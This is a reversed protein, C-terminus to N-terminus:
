IELTFTSGSGHKSRVVINWDHLEAIAKVYSLGLGFGKVNHVNGTPIRYLKDFIKSLHEKKIGIGKDSVSLHVKKGEKSLSVTIEPEDESYKIANDILNSLLNSLHFRDGQIYIFEDPIELQIKANRKKMRLEATNVVEHILENLNIKETSLKLEGKDLTASQLIREVLKMLRQNEDSIIKIYPSPANNGGMDGDNMAECALSITSIPTKFEHTMNSIFDSKLESLKKQTLITKFMMTMAVIIIILLALNVTLPAWMDLILFQNQKPFRVYLYLDEDLTNSPFLLSKFSSTTDLEELYNKPANEFEVREMKETVILFDFEAPLEENEMETQLVSDLFVIDIRKNPDEYINSRFADLMMENVFRAKKFIQQIVRQDLQVALQISDQPINGQPKRKFLDRLQRVDRALVRQQATVGSLSDFTEGQIVLYSEMKGNEFISTDEITISEKASLLNKFEEKLIDKYKVDFDHNVVNLYRRIDEAKEHQLSIRDLVTTFYSNFEASKRDFLQRTQFAQIFFLALMAIVVLVVIYNIRIPRMESNTRFSHLSNM